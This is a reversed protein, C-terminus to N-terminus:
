NSGILVSTVQIPIHPTHQISELGKKSLIIIHLSSFVAIIMCTVPASL